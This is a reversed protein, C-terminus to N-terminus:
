AAYRLVELEAAEDVGALIEEVRRYVADEILYETCNPCEVVPLDKLIVITRESLKFPLDTRASRMASGCSRCKM